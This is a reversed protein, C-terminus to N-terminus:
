HVICFLSVSSDGWDEWLCLLRLNPGSFPHLFHSNFTDLQDDIISGKCVMDPLCLTKGASLSQIFEYIFKAM